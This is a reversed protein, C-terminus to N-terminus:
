KGLKMALKANCIDDAVVLTPRFIGTTGHPAKEIIDLEPSNKSSLVERFTSTMFTFPSPQLADCEGPLSLAEYIEM